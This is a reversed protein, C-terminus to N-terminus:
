QRGSRAAQLKVKVTVEKDDRVVVLDVEDGPEHKGLFEMMQVVDLLDEDGWKIIRDDKKLGALAASTGPTVGGVVVGPKTDSYNGPAIGLRVRAQSVSGMQRSATQRFELREDRTALLHAVDGALNAVAVGGEPNILHAKDTPAHYEGHLGTHFFLVPINASNFSSHDSPGSGGGSTKIPLGSADFSPRLLDLFGTATEVGGIELKQEDNLRGIMDMNIMAQTQSAAFPMNEVFFESGELGSEEAGFGIFVISRASAGPPLQRYMSALREAQLIVGATGSANDDAGPHIEGMSGTRSGFHGYGVHDYHGGVVIYEAALAGKGRLVGAVNDTAFTPRDVGGELTLTAQPIPSVGGTEDAKRRWDLLSRGTAARLLRDAADGSMAIAPVGELGAQFSTERATSLRDTRPDAAGPPNVLVIGAVGRERLARIKPLLGAAASWGADNWRSKGEEDMPEFRLVMAIKGTLDDDKGFSSYGHESEAIAYGVFVLEGTAEGNGSFGLVNFDQGEVLEAAESRVRWTAGARVPEIPGRVTFPQRYSPKGDADLFLPELGAQQFQREIYDAALREGKTGPARGEFFPDSLTSVIQHFKRVQEPQARLTEAVASRAASAGASGTEPAGPAGTRQGAPTGSGADASSSTRPAVCASLGALAVIAGALGARFVTRAAPRFSADSMM